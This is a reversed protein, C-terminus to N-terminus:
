KLPGLTRSPRWREARVRIPDQVDDQAPGLRDPRLEESRMWETDMVFTGRPQDEKRRFTWRKPWLRM